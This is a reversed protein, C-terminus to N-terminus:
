SEGRVAKFQGAKLQYGLFGNRPLATGSCTIRKGEFEATFQRSM